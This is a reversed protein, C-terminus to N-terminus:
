VSLKPVFIMIVIHLIVGLVMVSLKIGILIIIILEIVCLM